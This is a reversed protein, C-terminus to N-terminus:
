ATDTEGGLYVREARNGLSTLIEYGITEAQDALDDISANPGIIEVWAGRHAIDEPIDTVDLTILDMSVRGLAPAPHGEIYGTLGTKTDHAGLYRFIGDAYGLTLTAVRTPRGLTHAAGYGVTRGAPAEHIQAIRTHLQVVPTLPERGAVARGGYMSFGARVMDFHYASGLHIGGSNAFCTPMEPLLARLDEFLQLQAANMPHDAEDACALHSMILAPSFAKLLDPSRALEDVEDRTLGLRHMGTDMQIAAPHPEGTQRCFEVWDIVEHLSSLVPRIDKAVFAPGAGRYMGNLVYITAEPAVDRVTEAENFAAVFFTRCGAQMLARVAEREGTGYANAKVVAACEAGGALANLARYNAQLAGLDIALVANATESAGSLHDPNKSSPM